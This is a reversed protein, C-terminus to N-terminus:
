RNYAVRSSGQMHEVTYVLVGEICVLFGLIGDDRSHLSEATAKGPHVSDCSYEEFRSSLESSV